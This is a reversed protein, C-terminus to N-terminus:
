VKKKRNEWLVLLPSANFISSYTGSVIGILLALTFYRISEGGLLFLATLTMVVTLSTALSRNLTEVLSYNVVDAFRWSDPLKRLNERIRDFVVITDHVSFGIVTLIATIFLADIEVKFFHGLISFVGLVVFADHLMAIIATLGFKFSSYPKPINRFAYAIYLLIGLLAVGVAVLSRKTTEKGVAPGITEFSIQKADAFRTILETKIEENKNVDVTKTRITVKNGEEFTVHEVDVGKQSYVDSFAARTEEQNEVAQALEYEFVSGGSFDIALNLGWTMLSIIGPVLVLLSVLLYWKTHKILNMDKGQEM